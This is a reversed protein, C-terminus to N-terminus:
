YSPRDGISVRDAPNEEAAARSRPGVLVFTARYRLYPGYKKQMAKEIQRLLSPRSLVSTM